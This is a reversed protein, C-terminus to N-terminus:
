YGVNQLYFKNTIGHKVNTVFVDSFCTNYGMTFLSSKADYYKKSKRNKSDYNTM